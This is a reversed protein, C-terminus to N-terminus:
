KRTIIYKVFELDNVDDIDISSIDDMVYKKKELEGMGKVNLLSVSIIYIAGNLEYVKPCDQRRSYEFKMLKRLLGDDDELYMIYYPNSKTEKVSIIMETDEDILNVAERIHHARRLPSTPQLLVVYDYIIGRSTYHEVAHKIVDEMSAYDDALKGPRMFPVDAGIKKAEKAIEESDTSVCIDSREACQKAAEITYAILTKGNLEIINKNPIGKSGSRAPILYLLKM